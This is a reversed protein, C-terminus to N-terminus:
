KLKNQHRVLLGEVHSLPQEKNVVNGEAADMKYTNINQEQSRLGLAAFISHFVM